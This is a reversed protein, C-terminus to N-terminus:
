SAARVNGKLCPLVAHVDIEGVGPVGANAEDILADRQNGVKDDAANNKEHEKDDGRKAPREHASDRNLTALMLSNCQEEAAQNVGTDHYEAKEDSQGHDSRGELCGVQDFDQADAADGDSEGELINQLVKEGANQQEKLLWKADAIEDADGAYFARDIVDLRTCRDDGRLLPPLDNNGVRNDERARDSHLM